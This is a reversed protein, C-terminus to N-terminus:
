KWTTLLRDQRKVDWISSKRCTRTHKLRLAFLHLLDVVRFCRLCIGTTSSVTTDAMVTVVARRIKQKDECVKGRSDSGRQWLFVSACVWLAVESEDTLMRAVWQVSPLDYGDTLIESSEVPFCFTNTESLYSPLTPHLSAPRSNNRPLHARLLM